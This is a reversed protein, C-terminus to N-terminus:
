SNNSVEYRARSRLVRRVAPSNAANASLHDASAWHRRNEETTTAADYRGRIHLPVHALQRGRPQPKGGALINRLFGLM